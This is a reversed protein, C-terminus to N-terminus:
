PMEYVKLITLKDHISDTILRLKWILSSKFIYIYEKLGRSVTEWYPAIQPMPMM